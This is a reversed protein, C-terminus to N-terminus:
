AELREPQGLTRREVFMVNGGLRKAHKKAISAAASVHMHSEYARPEIPVVGISLTTLPYSVPRGKRDEGLLTGRLLDPEDFLFRSERAFVDLARQCRQEWNANQFLLIFDDGGIHGIFDDRPDCASSLARATLKIMLDGRSYGYSDNFPKFHNLDAYAAIFPVQATLLRDIHEDIPVNGPLLTLPNAYRASELQLETIERILDQGTGLGVYHGADVIVFGQSLHRRDIGSLTESLDHIPLDKEVLLPHSDMFETCSRKGFLERRYPRAFRAIFTNREVLGVPNTGRLVPVAHMDPMSEFRALLEDNSCSEGVPSIRLLLKEATVKRNTPVRALQPFVSISRSRITDIVEDSASRVPDPQPRAIFYGQGFAIGLDRLVLLEEAQEIGEAILRSGCSDAIQQISKLFQLKVPDNHIGRVFHMDIKVLDPRMESWLRLSSFGQGLDDIAVDIGFSRFLTLAARMHEFDPTRQAETMEIVLRSPEIGSHQLFDLTHYQGLHEEVVTRPSLNLLLKGPLRLPIFSEVARECCLLELDTILGNAMGATFLATADSFPGDEPPRSLSEYGVFDGTALRMIPQFVTRIRRHEIIRRLAAADDDPAGEPLRRAPPSGQMIIDEAVSVPARLHMIEM